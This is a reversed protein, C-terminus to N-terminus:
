VFLETDFNKGSDKLFLMYKFKAYENEASSELFDRANDVMQLEFMVYLYADGAENPFEHSFREFLLMLRDPNIKKSLKKALEVFDDSKYDLERIYEVMLDDSLEIPKEIAHVRDILTDFFERTPEVKYKSIEEISAFSALALHAKQCLEKDVCKKLIVQAYTKDQSLKNEQNKLILANDDRLYYRDLEVVEGEDVKRKLDLIDQIGDDYIRHDAYRKPDINLLPVVAGPLKFLDTKYESDVIKGLLANKLNGVLKDSDKQIKRMRVHGISGYFVLHFVTVLFLVLAPVVAWVAIPLDVLLWSEALPLHYTGDVFTYIFLGMAILLIIGFTIYKRLGM